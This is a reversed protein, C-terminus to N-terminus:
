TESCPRGARGSYSASPNFVQLHDRAETLAAGEAWGHFREQVSNVSNPFNGGVAQEGGFFIIKSDMIKGGERGRRECLQRSLFRQAQCLTQEAECVGLMKGGMIEGFFGM